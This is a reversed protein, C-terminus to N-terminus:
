FLESAKGEGREGARWIPQNLDTCLLRWFVLRFENPDVPRERDIGRGAGIRPPALAYLVFVVLFRNHVPLPLRCADVHVYRSLVGGFNM